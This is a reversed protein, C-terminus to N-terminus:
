WFTSKRRNRLGEFSDDKNQSADTDFEGDEDEEDEEEDEEVYDPDEEENYSGEDDDEDQEFRVQYNLGNIGSHLDYNGHTNGADDIDSESSFLKEVKAADEQGLQSKQLQRVQKKYKKLGKEITREINLRHKIFHLKPYTSLEGNRIMEALREETPDSLIFYFDKLKIKPWLTVTGSFRQLWVNSWDQDMLHPLLDLSKIFKLWKKNELKIFNELGAGIFGGRLGTKKRSVPRGVSGKPAFFFLSIHPNVQSVVSFKVNFYTNLAEVPIDTRLSGDKYKTGFSFPVVKKTKPDKMMLVVPNLIGPVASSALVASWIVCNPSTIHNCLIVPSHPDAPVTSINLIKGTREYAEKFTMSGRTMWAAKRAWDVADFRAGTKWWRKVYVSFPENCATIKQALEPVLVEELEENTRTTALAAVIGGGSTGSVIKPLLDSELLAKIVGFHNYAFCAGGSLCLATKGFNKNLSKFLDKKLLPSIQDDEIIYELAKVVETNYEEVIEKTGYYTQSYLIPNETGAFNAKICGQLFLALEEKSNETRLAKLKKVTIKLTKYDYYYFNPHTKWKDLKLFKDLKIANSVWEAYDKSKRLALRLRRRQGTWTFFYEYLAIYLRIFFYVIVLFSCWLLIFGLIPYRLIRYSYSQFFDDTKKHTSHKKKKKSSKKSSLKTYIPTWDNKSTIKEVTPQIQNSLESSGVIENQIDVENKYNALNVQSNNNDTPLSDEYLLAEQFAKLDPAFSTLILM